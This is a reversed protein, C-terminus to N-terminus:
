SKRPAYKAIPNTLVGVTKLDGFPNELNRLQRNNRLQLRNLADPDFSPAFLDYTDFKAQLNPHAEQYAIITEAVLAWFNEESYETHEVLIASMFRFFSDFLQTFIPLTKAAEEVTTLVRNVVEPVEMDTNILSIEEGIDKMIAKVPINNEMVLILNEGHPMFVLDYTYFCHILPSLYAKFYHKLWTDTDLGSAKIFAPLLAKGDPDIHLLAAMTMPEQGKDLKDAPSERWLSALMKKYHSGNKIAKEYHSHGYGITAIERLVSFGNESLYADSELLNKLWDNIAPNTQMYYPSLGRVYGMNLISLATKVYFKDPNSVNYFTRISQQPLYKDESEGLFILYNLALDAAFVHSLKNTWQWPHIPIFYYDDSAVGRQEVITNFHHIAEEGLEQKMLKNYDLSPVTTFKAREKHAALWVLSFPNATEPAYAIYDTVNFGIRGNNAIFRPHGTMAGEIKQYDIATLETTYNKHKEHMYAMGYLTNGVEEMYVLLSKEDIGLQKNFEVIFNLSDLVEPNGGKYKRISEESIYWHNLHLVKAEFHYAVDSHEEKVVYQGWEGHQGTLEPTIIREHSFESLIKKIHIRNVKEWVTSKIHSIAEEPAIEQIAEM